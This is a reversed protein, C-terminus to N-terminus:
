LLKPSNLIMVYIFFCLSFFFCPLLVCALAALVQVGFKRVLGLSVGQFNTNRLLDFLNYSLLEFVICLHNRFVFQELMRVLPFNDGPDNSNLHELLEVEIRGQRLFQRNNKIIKVAVFTSTKTDYSNNSTPTQTKSDNM